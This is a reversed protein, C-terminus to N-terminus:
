YRSTSSRMKDEVDFVEDEADLVEVEHVNNAIDEIDLNGKTSTWM